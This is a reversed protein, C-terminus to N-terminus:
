DEKSITKAQGAENIPAIGQRTEEGAPHPLGPEHIGGPISQLVNVKCIILCTLIMFTLYPIANYRSDSLSFAEIVLGAPVAACVNKILMAKLPFGEYVLYSGMCGIFASLIALFATRMIPYVNKQRAAGIRATMLTDDSDSTLALASAAALDSFEDMVVFTGGTRDAIKQMKMRDVPGVGVTNVRTGSNIYPKLAAYFSFIGMDACAGDSFIIVDLNRGSSQAATIYKAALDLAPAFLTGGGAGESENKTNRIVDAGEPGARTMPIFDWAYDSYQIVAINKGTGMASVFDAIKPLCMNNPDSGAMSGSRDWLFVIDQIERPLTEGTLEYLAELATGLLGSSVCFVVIFTLVRKYHESFRFGTRGSLIGNALIVSLALLLATCLFLLGIVIVRPEGWKM